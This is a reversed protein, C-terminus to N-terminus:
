AGLGGGRVCWRIWYVCRINTTLHNHHKEVLSKTLIFHKLGGSVCVVCRFSASSDARLHHLHQEVLSKTLVFSNLWGGGGGDGCLCMQLSHSSDARVILHKMVSICYIVNAFTIFFLFVNYKLQYGASPVPAVNKIPRRM